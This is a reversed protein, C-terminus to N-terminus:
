KMYPLTFINQYLYASMEIGDVYVVSVDAVSLFLKRLFHEKSTYYTQSKAYNGFISSTIILIVRIHM